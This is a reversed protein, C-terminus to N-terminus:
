VRVRPIAEERHHAPGAHLWSVVLLLDPIFYKIMWRLTGWESSGLQGYRLARSRVSVSSGLPTLGDLILISPGGTMGVM